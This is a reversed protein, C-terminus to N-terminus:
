LADHDDHAAIELGIPIDYSLWFASLLSEVGRARIQVNSLSKSKLGKSQLVSPGQALCSVSHCFGTILITMCFVVITSAKM